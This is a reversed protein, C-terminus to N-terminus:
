QMLLATCVQVADWLTEYNDMANKPLNRDQYSKVFKDLTIKRIGPKSIGILNEYFLLFFYHLKLVFSSLIHSTPCATSILYLFKQMFHQVEAVM